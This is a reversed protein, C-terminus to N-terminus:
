EGMKLLAFFDGTSVSYKDYIAQFPADFYQDAYRFVDQKLYYIVKNLFAEKSSLDTESVFFPGLKKDESIQDTGDRDNIIDILRNVLLAFTPWSRKLKGKAELDTIFGRENLEADKLVDILPKDGAFTPLNGTYLDKKEGELTALRDFDIKVYERDFRRSFATDLVFVNQDATNMSCLISLNSPFWIKKEKFANPYKTEKQLYVAVEENNVEYVSRGASDRDLLQFLDGFIAPANGRNLEEIILFFVESPHNFCEALVRTMPGPVFEYDLGKEPHRLPRLAGVFDSYEYDPYFTVRTSHTAKHIPDTYFMSIKKNIDYSKGTGPAGFFIVQEPKMPVSIYERTEAEDSEEGLTLTAEEVPTDETGEILQSIAFVTSDNGANASKYLRKGSGLDIDSKVGFVDYIPQLKRKAIVLYDNVLLRERLPMLDNGYCIQLNPNGPNDPTANLLRRRIQITDNIWTKNEEPNGGELNAINGRHIRSALSLRWSKFSTNLTLTPFFDETKSMGPQPTSEGTIQIQTAHSARSTKNLSDTNKLQIILFAFVDDWSFTEDEAYALHERLVTLYHEFNNEVEQATNAITGDM